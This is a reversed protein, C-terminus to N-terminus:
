SKGAWSSWKPWYRKWIWRKGKGAVQGAMGATLCVVSM